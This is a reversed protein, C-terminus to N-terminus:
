QDKRAAIVHQSTSTSLPERELRPHWRISDRHRKKWDSGGVFGSQV